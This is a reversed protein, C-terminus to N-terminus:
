QQILDINTKILHYIRYLSGQLKSHIKDIHTKFSLHQDLWLGLYKCETVLDLPKGNLTYKHRIKPSKPKHINISKCKSPNLCLKWYKSWDHFRNLERQLMKYRLKSQTAPTTWLATDDAFCGMRVFNTYKVKYDNTYLIYLIPSLSSGQPLGLTQRKWESHAKKLLVRNYRHRLFSNMCQLFSGKIGYFYHLKFILGDHWISDYAKSFDTFVCDIDSNKDLSSYADNLFVSLVDDTCRNIQFGCQNNEFINNQACFHQLRKALVKEFIKGLCSSVAIPRYNAPDSHLENPKPIPHINSFNWIKPYCGEKLCQNFLILLEDLLIPINNTLMKNHIKDPGFAKNPDVDNLCNVIEYKEIPSNLHFLEGSITQDMKNPVDHPIRQTLNHIKQHFMKHNNNLKPPPPNTLVSHLINAQDIPNYHIQENHKLPPIDHSQNLKKNQNLLRWSLKDDMKSKQLFDNIKKTYKKKAHHIHHVKSKQIDDYQIKLQTYTPHNKFSHPYKKRIKEIKRRLKKAKNKFKNINSNWWPKYGRRYNRFGLSNVAAKYILDTIQIAQQDASNPRNRSYDSLLQELELRYKKWRSNSGLNWTSHYIEDHKDQLKLKFYIEFHDSINPRYNAQNVFWQEYQINPTTM